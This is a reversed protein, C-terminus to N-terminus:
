LVLASHLFCPVFRSSFTALVAQLQPGDFSQVLKLAKCFHIITLSVCLNAQKDPCFFFCLSISSVIYFHPIASELQSNAFFIYYHTDKTTALLQFLFIQLTNSTQNSHPGRNRISDRITGKAPPM